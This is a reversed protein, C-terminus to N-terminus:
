IKGSKTTGQHHQQYAATTKDLAEQPSWTVHGGKIKHFIVRLGAGSAIKALVESHHIPTTEDKEPYLICLPTGPKLKQIYEKNDFLHRLVGTLHEKHIVPFKEIAKEAISTFPALLVTEGPNKGNNQMKCAAMLANSAGLSEGFLVINGPSINCKEIHKLVAEIDKNFGEESSKGGSKGYGRMSVALTHYGRKHIEKLLNLRYKHDCSKDDTGVSGFHGTNGHFVVFLPQQQKTFDTETDEWITIDINDDTRLTTERLWDLGYDGPSQIAPVDRKWPSFIQSDQVLSLIKTVLFSTLQALKM